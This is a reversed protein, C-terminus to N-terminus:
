SRYGLQQLILKIVFVLGYATAVSALILSTESASIVDVLEVGDSATMLATFACTGDPNFDKIVLVGNAPNVCLM